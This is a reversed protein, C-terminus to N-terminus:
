FVYQEVALNQESFLFKAATISNQKQDRGFRARVLNVSNSMRAHAHVHVHINMLIHSCHIFHLDVPTCAM